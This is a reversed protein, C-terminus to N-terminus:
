ILGGHSVAEAFDGLRIGVILVVVFLIFGLGVLFARKM